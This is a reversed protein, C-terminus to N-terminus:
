SGCPNAKPNAEAVGHHGMWSNQAVHRARGPVPVSVSRSFMGSLATSQGRRLM